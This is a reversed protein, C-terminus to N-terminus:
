SRLAAKALGWRVGRDSVRLRDARAWELVELVIAAGAVIVDARAPELGTIERRVQLPVAALREILHEVVDRTLISGHVLEPVYTPLRQDVAALTTVTGAVGVLSTTANRPVVSLASRVDARVRELEAPAPPDNSVHRETLRVSGVDLSVCADIRPAEGGVEGHIIETSGGGVDFVTVTGQVTLDALAGDFTLAAEEDGDIIRPRVGLTREAADLFGEGNRADRAASTCVVRTDTVRNEELLKRYEGLCAVTRAVGEPSLLRTRDVGAGLRTITARELVARAPRNASASEEAVLLLVTNTGIDIAGVRKEM